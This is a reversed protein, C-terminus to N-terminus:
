KDLHELVWYGLGGIVTLATTLTTVIILNLKSDHNSLRREVEGHLLCTERQAVGKVYPCSQGDPEDTM